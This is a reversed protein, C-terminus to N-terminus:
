AGPPIGIAPPFVHECGHVAARTRPADPDIGVAEPDFVDRGRDLTANPWRPAGHSRMCRAFKAMDIRIQQVVTASPAVGPGGYPLLHRCTISAAEYRAGGAALEVQSKPWVGRSDPDPWDSVGHARICRSFALAQATLAHPSGPPLGSSTRATTSGLQAVRTGKSGGCAAVVLALGAVVVLAAVARWTRRATM